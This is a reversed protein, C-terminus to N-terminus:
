GQVTFDKFKTIVKKGNMEKCEGTLTIVSGVHRDLQSSNITGFDSRIEVVTKNSLQILYLNLDELSVSLKLLGKVEIQGGGESLIKWSGDDAVEYTFNAMETLGPLARTSEAFSDKQVGMVQMIKLLLNSNPENNYRVYRGLALQGGGGGSVVLPLDNVSHYDSHKIGSGFLVVSNDFLTSDAEKFSKLKELFYAFQTTHWQNVKDFSPLVQKRARVFHSLYHLEENVGIFDYVCRSETHSMMLSAVNTTNTWFAIAILDLMAKIREGVNGAAPFDKVSAIRAQREPDAEGKFQEIQIEVDRISSLYQELTQRDAGSAKSVVARYSDKVGDLISTTEARRAANNFGRFLTNFVIEPDDATPIPDGAADYSLYNESVDDKDLYPDGRLVLSKVPTKTGIVDAIVQDFSQSQKFKSQMPLGTMFAISDQKHGGNAKPSSNIGSLITIDKQHEKLPLLLKSLEFTTETAGTIDWASPNVGCGKYLVCARLTRASPKRAAGYSLAPSMIELLPLALTACSGRLFSRRSILYSKM